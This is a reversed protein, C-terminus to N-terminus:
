RTNNFSISHDRYYNKNILSRSTKAIIEGDTYDTPYIGEKRVLVTQNWEALTSENLEVDDPDTWNFTINNEDLYFGLNTCSGLRIQTAIKDISYKVSKEVKNNITKFLEM